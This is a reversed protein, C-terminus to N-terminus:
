DQKSKVYYALSGYIDWYCRLKLFRHFGHSFFISFIYAARQNEISFPRRCGWLAKRPRSWARGKQWQKMVVVFCPNLQYESEFSAIGGQLLPCGHGENPWLQLVCAAGCLRLGNGWSSSLLKLYSKNSPRLGTARVVNNRDSATLGPLM